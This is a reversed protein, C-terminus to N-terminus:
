KRKKKDAKDAKPGRIIGAMEDRSMGDKGGKRRLLNDLFGGNEEPMDEDGELCIWMYCSYFMVGLSIVWGLGLMLYIIGMYHDFQTLVSDPFISALIIWIYHDFEEMFPLHLSYFVMVAIYVATYVRCRGARAALENRGVDKSLYGAGLLTLWYVTVMSLSTLSGAAMVVPSPLKAGAASAIQLGDSILSLPIVAYMARFAMNFGPAYPSLKKLAYAMLAYAIVDPFVDVGKFFFLLIHSIFLIGFGM